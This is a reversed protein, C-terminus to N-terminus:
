FSYAENGTRNFYDRAYRQASKGIQDDTIGYEKELLLSLLQNNREMLRADRNSSQLIADKIGTIEMGSAVATKGGMTGVLEPIGNENAWFLDASKPFGGNEYFEFSPWGKLSLASVVAQQLIGDAKKYSVKFNLKPISLKVNKSWWDKAKNWANKLMELINPATTTIQKLAPKSDWWEKAKAWADKLASLLFIAPSIKKLLPKKNDWWEKTENWKKSLSKKLDEIDFSVIKLSPKDEWWEKVKAWLKSLSEELNEFDFDIEKLKPRNEWWKRLEDWKKQIDKKLGDWDIESFWEYSKVGIKVSLSPMVGANDVLHLIAGTIDPLEIVIKKLVLKWDLNSLKELFNDKIKKYDAESYFGNIFDALSGVSTWALSIASTVIDYWDLGSIFEGVNEGLKKWNVRTIAKSVFNFIDSVLGSVDEGVAIWDGAKIDKFLKEVPKFAKEIADAFGQARQEMKDYAEQWVKEYEETAAIIENTLDITSGLGDSSGKPTSITKLEDFGRLGAKAKKASESVDDLSGAMDDFADSGGQGFESFDIKIGLFGAINVLLRKIAITAGNVVPLVKQLLPVFLQGLVMGAEKLNNKFQRIMNSPSNITNALDGWSVKSQDLIAIMRLQMKEAQTMESVAKELGLEYAYTQLTANTIDIGYKYLARSQGILGSQLNKAVSNYDQNFLSSIDGALKTFASASRLSVEGRHGVSNTISALQSAYQTIEQINLGLNKLGTETLLGKGDAGVSVQVGSLKSLSEKARKGFSEAYAEASDYGFRSFDQKWENSIKNFSVEFYNFAEIYDSTGEISKYLSKIGRVVWFYNAYFKGFAAALGNFQKTSKTASTTLKTMGSSTNASAGGIKSLSSSVTGLKAILNDLMKDTNKLSTSIQIDLSDVTPM